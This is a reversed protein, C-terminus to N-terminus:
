KRRKLLKKIASLCTVWCSIIEDRKNQGQAKGGGRRKKGAGCDEGSGGKGQSETRWTM